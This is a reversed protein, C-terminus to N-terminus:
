DEDQGLEGGEEVGGGGVVPEIEGGIEGGLRAAGDEDGVCDEGEAIDAGRPAALPLEEEALEGLEPSGWPLSNLLM